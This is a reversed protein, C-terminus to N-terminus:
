KIFDERMPSFVDILIGPELNIAGHEVDSPIFYCDGGRLIKKDDGIQVEFKGSLVYTVQSHIHKHVYGIAGKQFEVKVMMIKEDYGLMKRRLGEGVNEWEVNADEIYIDSMINM